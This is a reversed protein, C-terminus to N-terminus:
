AHVAYGDLPILDTQVSSPSVFSDLHPQTTMIGVKFKELMVQVIRDEQAKEAERREQRQRLQEENAQMIAVKSEVIQPPPPASRPHLVRVATSSYNRQRSGSRAM